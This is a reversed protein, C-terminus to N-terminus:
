PYLKLPSTRNHCPVKEWQNSVPIVKVYKLPDHGTHPRAQDEATLAAVLNEQAIYEVIALMDEGALHSWNIAM